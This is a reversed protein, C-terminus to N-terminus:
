VNVHYTASGGGRGGNRKQQCMGGPFVSGAVDVHGAVEIVPLLRHLEFVLAADELLGDLQGFLLMLVLHTCEAAQAHRPEAVALM